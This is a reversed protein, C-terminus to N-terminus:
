WEFANTLAGYPGIRVNAPPLPEQAPTLTPSNASGGFTTNGPVFFITGPGAAPPLGFTLECVAGNTTLNASEGIAVPLGRSQNQPLFYNVWSPDVQPNSNQIIVQLADSCRALAFSQRTAAQQAPTGCKGGM